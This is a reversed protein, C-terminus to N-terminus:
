HSSAAQPPVSSVSTLDGTITGILRITAKIRLPFHQPGDSFWILMQGKRRLLGNFVEPQVRFAKRDGLATHIMELAQVHADVDYTKSGDNVPIHIVEGVHLPQRRVYYFASVVDEVCSPIQNTAHKPPAHPKGPDTETLIAEKTKSDFVINTVKHRRGENIVKSIRYSCMTQPNFESRFTDSVDFLLSVFGQSQAQTVVRYADQSGDQISQLSATVQGAHFVAWTVSYTLREGPAFPPPTPAGQGSAAFAAGLM